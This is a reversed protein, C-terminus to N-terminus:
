PRRWFRWRMGSRLTLVSGSEDLLRLEGLDGRHLAEWAPLVWNETVGAPSTIWVFSDQELSLQTFAQLPGAHNHGALDALGGVMPDSAYSMTFPWRCQAPLTGRGWAWVSNITLVGADRRRQNVPADHMIMQLENLWSRYRMRAEGEPLLAGIHRGAADHVPHLDAHENLAPAIWYEPRIRHIPLGTQVSIYTALAAAEDDEIGLQEGPLLRLGDSDAMLHVPDLRMWDGEPLDAVRASLAGAPIRGEVGALSAIASVIGDARTSHRNARALIRALAPDSAQSLGAVLLTLTPRASM